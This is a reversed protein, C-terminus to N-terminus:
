KVVSARVLTKITRHVRELAGNASPSYPLTYTHRVALSDCVKSFTHNLWETGRDTYVAEVGGGRAVVGWEFGSAVTEAKKNKLPVLYLYRSFLDLATLCYRFNGESSEPLPGILDAAVMQGVYGATRSFKEYSQHKAPPYRKSWCSGCTAVYDTVDRALGPWFCGTHLSWLTSDSGQHKCYQEHATAVMRLRAKRPVLLRHSRTMQGRVREVVLLDGELSILPLLQRYCWLERDARAQRMQTRGPGKNDKVWQRVINLNADQRQMAVMDAM